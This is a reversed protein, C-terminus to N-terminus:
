RPARLLGFRWLLLRWAMMPDDKVRGHVQWHALLCGALYLWRFRAGARRILSIDINVPMTHSRADTHDPGFKYFDAGIHGAIDAMADSDDASLKVIQAAHRWCTCWADSASMEEDGIREQWCKVLSILDSRDIRGADCYTGLRAVLPVRSSTSSPDELADHWWQLRIAALMIESPIRVANELEHGLNFLDSLLARDAFPAFELCLALQKDTQQLAQWADRM